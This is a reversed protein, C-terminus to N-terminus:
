KKYMITIGDRVTLMLTEIRPDKNIMENFEAIAKANKGSIPKKLVEGHFFVNDFLLWTGTKIRNILLEFYGKYGTKDADVFILDWDENLNDLIEMAPGVHVCISKNYPSKEIFAKAIGADDERKEITHLKGNKDLGKALCIASYGMFTGIELIRKPKIMKSVMTLLQGQLAGSLMHHEPHNQETYAKIESLLEDEKATHQLAYENVEFPIIDM